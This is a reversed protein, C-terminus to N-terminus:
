LEQFSAGAEQELRNLGNQCSRQQRNYEARLEENRTSASKKELSHFQRDLSRMAEATSTVKQMLRKREALTYRLGRVIRSVAVKKRALKCLCRRYPKPNKTRSIGKLKRELAHVDKHLATMEKIQSITTKLRAALIEETVE